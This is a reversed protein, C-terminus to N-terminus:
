AGTGEASPRAALVDGLVALTESAGGLSVEIQKGWLFYRHVPYDVDAGIGGHLHQTIHVVRHGGDSAWWKAVLVEERADRGQDIRWAAQLMTTRMCEIAIYADAAKLAVGQFTSLPKGFQLRNSTYDAALALAAEAVGVQLGCLGVLWRARLWAEAESSADDSGLPDIVSADDISLHGVLQRSTTQASEVHVSPGRPDVLGLRGDGLPVVVRTAAHGAPVSVGNPELAATLVVDGAVVGPLWAKRQEETGFEAVAMATVLTPLLPVPEVV